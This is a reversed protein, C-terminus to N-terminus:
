SRPAAAATASAKTWCLFFESTVLSHSFLLGRGPKVPTLIHLLVLTGEPGRSQAVATGAGQFRSLDRRELKGHSLFPSSFLSLLLWWVEKIGIM